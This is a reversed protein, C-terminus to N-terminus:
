FTSTSGGNSIGKDRLDRRCSCSDPVRSWRGVFVRNALLVKRESCILWWGFSCASLVWLGFSPRALLVAVPFRVERGPGEVLGFTGSSCEQLIQESM